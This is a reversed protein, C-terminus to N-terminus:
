EPADAPAADGEAAAEAEAETGEAAAEGEAGEEAETPEPEARSPMANDEVDVLNAISEDLDEQSVIGKSINRAVVRKDLIFDPHPM